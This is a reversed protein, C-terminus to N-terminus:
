SSDSFEYSSSDMEDDLGSGEAEISVDEDEDLNGDKQLSMDTDDLVSLEAEVSRLQVKALNSCFDQIECVKKNGAWRVFNVYTRDISKVNMNGEGEFSWFDHYMSVASRLIHALVRPRFSKALRDHKGEFRELIRNSELTKTVHNIVQFSHWLLFSLAGGFVLMRRRLSLTETYPGRLVTNLAQRTGKQPKSHIFRAFSPATYSLLELFGSSIGDFTWGCCCVDIETNDYCYLSSDSRRLLCAPLDLPTVPPRVSLSDPMAKFVVWSCGYYRRPLCWLLGQARDVMAAVCLKYWERSNEIQRSGDFDFLRHCFVKLRNQLALQLHNVVSSDLIETGTFHRIEELILVVMMVARDKHPSTHVLDCYRLVQSCKYRHFRELLALVHQLEPVMYVLVRKWRVISSTYSYSYLAHTDENSDLIKLFIRSRLPELSEMLDFLYKYNQTFTKIGGFQSEMTEFVELASIDEQLLEALLPPLNQSSFVTGLHYSFINFDTLKSQVDCTWM